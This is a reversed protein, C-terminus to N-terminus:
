LSTIRLLDGTLCATCHLGKATRFASETLCRDLSVTTKLPDQSETTGCRHKFGNRCEKRDEPTENNPYMQVAM